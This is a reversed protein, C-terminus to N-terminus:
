KREKDLEALFERAIKKAETTRPEHDVMMRLLAVARNRLLELKSALEYSVVDMSDLNPRSVYYAGNRWTLRFRARDSELTEPTKSMTDGRHQYGGFQYAGDSM